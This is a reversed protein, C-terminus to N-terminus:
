RGDGDRWGCRYSAMENWFDLTFDMPYLVIAGVLVEFSEGQTIVANIKITPVDMVDNPRLKILLPQATIKTAEKLGRMSTKIIFPCPNLIGKNLDMIEIAAKGLM